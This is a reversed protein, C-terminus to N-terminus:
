ASRAPTYSWPIVDSIKDKPQAPNDRRWCSRANMRTSSSNSASSYPKPFALHGVVRFGADRYAKLFKDAHPWGYFNVAFSNPELVRHIDAFAPALWADTDDGPVRRGDRARYNALYHPDTLVFNVGGRTAAASGALLRRHHHHQRCHDDHHRSRQSTSAGRAVEKRGPVRLRLWRGPCSPIKTKRSSPLLGPIIGM